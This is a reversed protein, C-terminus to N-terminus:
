YAYKVATCENGRIEFTGTSIVVNNQDKIQYSFSKSQVNGIGYNPMLMADPHDCTPTFSFGTNPSMSDWFTGDVYLKVNTIGDNLLAQGTNTDHYVVASGRYSCTGDDEEANVNYNEAKTNTCGPVAEKCAYLTM